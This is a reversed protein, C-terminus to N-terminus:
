QSNTMKDELLKIIKNKLEIEVQQHIIINEKLLIQNKLDKIQDILETILGQYETSIFKYQKKIQTEHKPNVAVLEVYKKYHVPIEITQFFEKIDTEADSLFKPDIYSFDMLGLKVNPIKEYERVHEASRRDLNDTLGYKIIIYDDKINEPLNMTNRLVKATGLSFRYICPVKKSCTKFVARVNKVSQGILTSGLIEKDEESGMQVTFLTETAWSRFTMAKDSRSSYLIKIMGEYTVFLQKTQETSDSTGVNLNIFIKYDVGIIYNCRIDKLTKVLGTMEFATSVDKALFYIGTPTRVGRTEIDVVNGDNDTFKESDELYLLDPAKPYEYQEEKSENSDPMMKPITQTVRENSYPMMKPITQTVWDNLFLLKAKNSPKAQNSSKTWGNKKSWTAYVYKDADITKKKIIKRVTRSCGHFYASDYTRLDDANYYKVDGLSIEKPRLISAM